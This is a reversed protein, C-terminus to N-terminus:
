SDHSNLFQQLIIAAAVADDQDLGARSRRAGGLGRAHERQWSQAAVSSYREDVFHVPLGFRGHLRRGFREAQDTAPQREGAETLPRGVVLAAPQWQALLDALDAFLRDNTTRRLVTLASARATVTNALAVGIRQEGVDFALLVSDESAPSEPTGPM